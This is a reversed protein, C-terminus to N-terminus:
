KRRKALIKKSYIVIQVREGNDLGLYYVITIEIIFSLIFYCCSLLLSLHPYFIKIPVLLASVVLLTTLPRAISKKFFILKNLGLLKNLLCIRIYIGYVAVAIAIYLITEPVAGFKYCVYSIPLSSIVCCSVIISYKKLDGTAQAAVDLPYAMVDIYAFILLLVFFMVSHNPVEKLWVSLIIDANLIFPFSLIFILYFSYKCVNMILNLMNDFQRKSYLKVIQPNAALQFSSTFQRIGTYAQSAVSYAANLIPGFFLNLIINTGQIFGMTALNSILNWGSLGIMAKFLPKDFTWHLKCEEYKMKCFIVCVTRNFTQIFFLFIAYVLLKDWPVIFLLAVFCVKLISDIISFLAFTGMDEHAVIEANNPANIIICIANLVSIQYVWVATRFREAPIIMENYIWWLGITEALIVIVLSLLIHIQVSTSYTQKLQETDGKGIKFTLFRQTCSALSSTLISLFAAIGGVAAYIGFDTVGLVQLTLRSTYLSLFLTLLQRLYLFLTNKVIKKNATQIDASM